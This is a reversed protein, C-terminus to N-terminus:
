NSNKKWWRWHMSLKPLLFSPLKEFNYGVKYGILKFGNRLIMEPILHLCNQSNLYKIESKVYKKGEGTAKGFKDIIWHEKSHFVGIDFYRKFDEILTYSHSHYVKAESVYAIHYGKLALKAGCYVDEGLILNDKFGGVENYTSKRYASFSNSLQATKIGYKHSNQLSRTESKGPYNFLRLHTGFANTGQYSLQRGYAAAVMENDFVKILKFLSLSEALLADQTLFVLIDGRAYRSAFHRTGGHDFDNPSVSLFVDAHKKMCEVTGDSSSSDVIILEFEIQEQGEIAALIKQIEHGPNYTPLIVSIM